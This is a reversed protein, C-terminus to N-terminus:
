AFRMIFQMKTNAPVTCTLLTLDSLELENGSFDIKIREQNYQYLDFFTSLDISQVANKFFPNAFTVNLSTALAVASASYIELSKLRVPNLKIYRLFEDITRTPDGSTMTVNAGHPNTYATPADHLVADVPFGATRLAEPSSPKLFADVTAICDKGDAMVKTTEVVVEETRFGAPVLALLLDNSASKNDINFKMHNAVGKGVQAEQNMLVITDSSGNARNSLKHSARSMIYKPNSM